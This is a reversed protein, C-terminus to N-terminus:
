EEVVVDLMAALSSHEFKAKSRLEVVEDRGQVEDVIDRRMSEKKSPPVNRANHALSPEPNLTGRHSRTAFGKAAAPQGGFQEAPSKRPSPKCSEGSKGSPQSAVATSILAQYIAQSQQNTADNQNRM